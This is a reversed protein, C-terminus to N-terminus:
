KVTIYVPQTFTSANLTDTAKAVVQYRGPTPTSWTLSYPAALATGVLKAGVYFEVKKIGHPDSATATLKVPAAPAISSNASPATLTVVPPPNGPANFAIFCYAPASTASGDNANYGLIFTGNGTAPPTYTFNPATGTLTGFAGSSSYKYTLPDGDPDYATLTIAVPGAVNFSAPLALPARNTSPQVYVASTEFAGLDARAGLVPRAISAQHALYSRDVTYGKALAAPALPGAADIADSGSTLQYDLVALSAFGPSNQGAFDGVILNSWGNVIAGTPHGYWDRRIGPSIWNMGLDITPSATSQVLFMAHYLNANITSASYFVNNRADVKEQIATTGVYNADPLFFLSTAKRHNVVTNHYFYLTGRYQQAYSKAGNIAGFWMVGNGAASGASSQLTIENGYVFADRYDPQQDIYGTGGQPDLIAFVESGETTVVRNYRIVTGSSRDKIMCGHCGPRLPGFRNFQYVAGVSEVYIHHEGHGNTLGPMAPQGNDHFYNKEILLDASSQAAGNKSNAFLGNGNFSIECGRITLHHAFEIYIGCAFTHYNRAVGHSDTFHPAGTPDYLANRIDLSEITIDAPFTKGYVYGQARPTIIILGLNEFVPNRFNVKPDTVAGNGDIVPLKGTVPDPIGRILIPNDATGSASVQIIEHYGGPKAHINVIDGPQLAAWSVDALKQLPAAPLGVDYTVARSVSATLLTLSLLLYRITHM